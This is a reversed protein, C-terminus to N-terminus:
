KGMRKQGHGLEGRRSRWSPDTSQIEKLSSFELNENDYYLGVLQRFNEPFPMEVLHDTVYGAQWAEWPHMVYAGSANADGDIWVFQQVEWPASCVYEGGQSLLCQYIQTSVASILETEWVHMYSMQCRPPIPLARVDEFAKVEATFEDQVLNWLDILLDNDWLRGDPDRLYRRIATIQEILRM